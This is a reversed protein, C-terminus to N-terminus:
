SARPMRLMEGASVAGLLESRPVEELAVTTRITLGIIVIQERRPTSVAISRNQIHAVSRYIDCVYIEPSFTLCTDIKLFTNGRQLFSPMHLMEETSLTALLEALISEM